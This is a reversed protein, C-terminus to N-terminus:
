SPRIPPSLKQFFIFFATHCFRVYARVYAVEFVILNQFNWWFEQRGILYNGKLLIKLDMFNDIEILFIQTLSKKLIKKKKKQYWSKFFHIFSLLYYLYSWLLGFISRNSDCLMYFWKQLTHAGLEVYNL